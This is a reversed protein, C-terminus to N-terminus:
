VAHEKKKTHAPGKQKSGHLSKRYKRPDGRNMKKQDRTGLGGEWFGSRSQRTLDRNCHVCPKQGRITSEKSCWGCIQSTALAGETSHTSLSDHCIDCAFVCQCCPFRLWRNSKKYHKCTGNRPLPQGKVLGLQQKEKPGIATAKTPHQIILFSTTTIKVSQKAFCSRCPRSQAQGAILGKIAAGIQGCDCTPSFSCPGLDMVSCGKLDLYGLRSNAQHLALGRYTVCLLASCTACKTSVEKFLPVSPSDAVAKCRLCKLTLSITLPELLPINQMEIVSNIATGREEVRDITPKIALQELDSEILSFDSEADSDSDDVFYTQGEVLVFDNDFQNDDPKWDSIPPSEARMAVPKLKDVNSSIYNLNRALGRDRMLEYNAAEEISPGDLVLLSAHILPYEKPVTLRIRLNPLQLDFSTQHLQSPHIMRLKTLEMNRAIEAELLAVKSFAQNVPATADLIRAPKTEAKIAPDINGTRIIKITDVKKMALLAELNRDLWTLSGLIGRGGHGFGIKQADFEREINRAFGIEIGTVRLQMPAHPYEPPITFRMTLSPLEFPFDPDTPVFPVEFTEESQRLSTGYRRKLQAVQKDRSNITPKHVVRVPDVSNATVSALRAANPVVVSSQCQNKHKRRSRPKLSASASDSM